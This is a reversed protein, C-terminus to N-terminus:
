RKIPSVEAFKIVSQVNEIVLIYDDVIVNLIAVITKSSMKSVALCLTQSSKVYIKTLRLQGLNICRRCYITKTEEFKGFNIEVSKRYDLDM